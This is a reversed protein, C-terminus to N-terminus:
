NTNENKFKDRLHNPIKNEISKKALDLSSYFQKWDASGHTKIAIENLGLFIAGANNKYDFTKKIKAFLCISFLFGLWNLPKKYNKKIEGAFIKFSGEMAKLCINGTFGDTIIIDTEGKLLDRSEVFGIYNITKNQKLIKHALKISELGKNEETGINLLGITPNKLSKIKQVYINAMLAFNVLDLHDAEINAGVDLMNFGNGNSSPFSPTFAPKSINKIVGFKYYSLGVFCPTSGASLIADGEGNKVLDMSIAMSSNKKNRLVSMVDDAQDIFIKTHHIKFEDNFKLYPKIEEKNGVLIIQVKPFKKVFKRAAIIPEQVSNEFGMTDLIIKM